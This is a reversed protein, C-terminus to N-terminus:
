EKTSIVMISIGLKYSCGSGGHGVPFHYSPVLGHQSFFSRNSPRSSSMLKFDVLAEVVVQIFGRDIAQDNDREEHVMDRIFYPM